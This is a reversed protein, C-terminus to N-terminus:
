ILSCVSCAMPLLGSYATGRWQRQMLEQRWTKAWNSDRDKNLSLPLTYALDVREERVQKKTM